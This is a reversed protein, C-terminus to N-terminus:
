PLCHYMKGSIIVTMLGLMASTALSQLKIAAEYYKNNERDEMLKAIETFWLLAIAAATSDELKCDKPQRFDVSSDM